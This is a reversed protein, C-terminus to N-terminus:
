VYVEGRNPSTNEDNQPILKEQIIGEKGNPLLAYRVIKM